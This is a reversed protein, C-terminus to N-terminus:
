LRLVSFLEEQRVASQITPFDSLNIITFPIKDSDDSLFEWEKRM